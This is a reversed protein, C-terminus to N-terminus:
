SLHRTINDLTAVRSKHSHKSTCYLDAIIYEMGPSMLRANVFHHTNVDDSAVKIM